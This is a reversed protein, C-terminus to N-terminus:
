MKSLRIKLDGQMVRSIERCRAVLEDPHMGAEMTDLGAMLHLCATIQECSMGVELANRLADILMEPLTPRNAEERKGSPKIVKWLQSTNTM